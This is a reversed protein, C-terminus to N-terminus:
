LNHLSIQIHEYIVSTKLQLKILVDGGPLMKM